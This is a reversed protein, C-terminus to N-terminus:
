LTFHFSLTHSPSWQCSTLLLSKVFLLACANRVPVVTDAIVWDIATVIGSTWGSGGCDLVRVAVVTAARAVGYRAGAVTGAALPVTVTVTM